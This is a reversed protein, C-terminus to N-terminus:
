GWHLTPGKRGVAFVLAGAAANCIDDHQGPPHDITDKGSRSTRRELSVFQGVLRKDDLILVQRSNIM